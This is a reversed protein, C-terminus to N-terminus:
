QMLSRAEIPILGILSIILLTIALKELPAGKINQRLINLAVYGQVLFICLGAAVKAGMYADFDAAGLAAFGIAVALAMAIAAAVISIKLAKNLRGLPMGFGSKVADGRRKLAARKGMAALACAAAAFMLAYSLAAFVAHAQAVVGVSPQRMASELFTPCFAPLVTLAAAAATPLKTFAEIKLAAGALAIAACFWGIIESLGQPYGAPISSDFAFLIAFAATHAALGAAILAIQGGTRREPFFNAAFAMAYFAFAAFFFYPTFYTM